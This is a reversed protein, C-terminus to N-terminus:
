AHNVDKISELHRQFTKRYNQIGAIYSFDWLQNANNKEKESITDQSISMGGGNWEFSISIRHGKKNAFTQIIVNKLTITEHQSILMDYSTMANNTLIKSAQMILSIDNKGSLEEILFTKNSERGGIDLFADRIFNLAGAGVLEGDSTQSLVNIKKFYHTADGSAKSIFKPFLHIKNQDTTIRFDTYNKRYAFLHQNTKPQKLIGCIIDTARKLNVPDFYDILSPFNKWQEKQTYKYTQKPLLAPRVNIPVNIKQPYVLVNTKDKITSKPSITTKEKELREVDDIHIMIPKNVKEHVTVTAHDLIKISNDIFKPTYFDHEGPMLIQPIENSGHISDKHPTLDLVSRLLSNIGTKKNGFLRAQKFFTLCSKISKMFHTMTPSDTTATNIIFFNFSATTSINNNFDKKFKIHNLAKGGIKCSNIVLGHTSIKNNFFSLTKQLEQPKLNAISNVNGHGNLIINWKIPSILFKETKEKAFFIKELDKTSFSPKEKKIKDLWDIFKIFKSFTFPSSYDHPPHDLSFFDLGTAQAYQLRLDKSIKTHPKIKEKESGQLIKKPILLFLHSDKPHLILWSDFFKDFNFEKKGPPFGSLTYKTFKMKLKKHNDSHTNQYNKINPHYGVLRVLFNYLINHSLIIPYQENEIGGMLHDLMAGGDQDTPKESCNQDIIILADKFITQQVEKQPAELARKKRKTSQRQVGENSRKMAQGASTAFLSTILLLTLKLLKM